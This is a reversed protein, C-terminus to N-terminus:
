FILAKLNTQSDSMEMGWGWVCVGKKLAQSVNQKDKPNHFHAPIRRSIYQKIMQKPCENIEKITPFNIDELKLYHSLPKCCLSRLTLESHMKIM